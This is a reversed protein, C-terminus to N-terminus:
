QSVQDDPKLVDASGSRLSMAASLVARAGRFYLTVAAALAHRKAHM